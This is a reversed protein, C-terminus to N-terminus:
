TTRYVCSLSQSRNTSSFYLKREDTIYTIKFIIEKM